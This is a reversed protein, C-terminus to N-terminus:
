EEGSALPLSYDYSAGGTASAYPDFFSAYPTTITGAPPSAGASPLSGGSMYYAIDEPSEGGLGPFNSGGPASNPIVGITGTSITGPGGGPGYLTPPNARDSAWPQRAYNDPAFAPGGGGVISYGGTGRQPGGGMRGLYEEFLQRAYSAAQTPDPAAANIANQLAIETQLAPNVTQTSSVTPVVSSYDQIGQQTQQESLLGLDRLTRNRAFQSGPMGSGVGWSAGLDQLMSVTGPSLQGGLKASLDSSLTRNIGPLGPLQAGLDRAPQPLSIPGPIGGFPSGLGRQPAPNTSSYPYVVGGPTTPFAGGYFENYNPM